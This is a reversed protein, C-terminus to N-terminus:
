DTESEMRQSENLVEECYKEVIPNLHGTAIANVWQNKVSVVNIQIGAKEHADLIVIWPSVELKVSAMLLKDM